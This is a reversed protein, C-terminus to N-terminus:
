KNLATKLLEEIRKQSKEDKNGELSKLEERIKESKEKEFLQYYADMLLEKAIERTLKEPEKIEFAVFKSDKKFDEVNNIKHKSKILTIQM